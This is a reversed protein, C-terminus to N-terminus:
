PHYDFRSGDIARPESPQERERLMEAKREEVGEELTLWAQRLHPPVDHEPPPETSPAPRTMIAYRAMAAAHGYLSEWEPDVKEGGDKRDKPQVPASQLEEVLRACRDRVFFIRPAGLQGAKAHWSPFSHQPDLTLMERVRILGARPDNNAPVLPVGHESFEDALMAPEGFKLRAGTRHWISPDAFATHGLGWETKRRGIVLQCLDSPLMDTVYLMDQFILNGEYDIAVLAWPAGNLGYDCAEFRDHSNTMEFDDILHEPTVSYAAGEFADWDGELLQKQLEDSLHSMTQRYETVDLGPNDAVTGPIFVVGPKRDKASVFRQKVWLHGINGPNSASRARIPVKALPGTKPRRARSFAIYDYISETFSTLEDFGVYQYAASQYNHKDAENQCHGFELRAGSPFVWLKGGDMKRADTNALWIEARPILGDSKSLEAYTRRLILAAYGPIDVYQLAGALLADSKGPGAAGGYFAELQDLVFFAAQKPSATWLNPWYKALPPYLESLLEAASNPSLESPSSSEHLTQM